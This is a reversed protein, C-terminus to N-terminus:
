ATAAFAAFTHAGLTLFPGSDGHKSDRVLVRRGKASAVVEVCNGNDGSSYSSKRWGPTASTTNGERATHTAPRM